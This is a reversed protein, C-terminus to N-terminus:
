LSHHEFSLRISLLPVLVNRSPEIRVVIDHVQDLQNEVRAMDDRTEQSSEQLLDATKTTNPRVFSNPSGLTSRSERAVPPFKAVREDTYNFQRVGPEFIVHPNHNLQILLICDSGCYFRSLVFVFWRVKKCRSYLQNTIVQLYSSMIRLRGTPDKKGNPFRVDMHEHRARM